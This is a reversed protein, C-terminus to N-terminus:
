ARDFGWPARYSKTLRANADDNGLITETKPDFRLARGTRYAIEGLHVLACRLHAVEADANSAAGGGSRVADFFTGVHEENGASGRAGPGKEEKAGLHTQFAGRRSFVMYGETGFFVNANDFGREGRSGSGPRPM